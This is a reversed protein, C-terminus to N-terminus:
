MRQLILVSNSRCLGNDLMLINIMVM